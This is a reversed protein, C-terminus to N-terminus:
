QGRVFMWLEDVNGKFCFGQMGAKRAGEVNEEIDDIFLCEKPNLGYEKCIYNFIDVHPKEMKVDSSIVRGDFCEMAPVKDVYIHATDPANSLLYIGMGLKKNERVFNEMGPVPELPEFWHLTLKHAVAHLREPLRASCREYIDGATIEGADAMVWEKSHFLERLLIDRDEKDNVGERDMFHEPMYNILVNGMDFILNKVMSCIIGYLFARTHM